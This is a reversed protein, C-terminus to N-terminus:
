KRGNNLKKINVTILIGNKKQRLGRSRRALKKEAFKVIYKQRCDEGDEIIDVSKFIV